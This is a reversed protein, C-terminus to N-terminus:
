DGLRLVVGRGPSHARCDQGDINVVASELACYKGCSAVLGGRRGAKVGKAGLENPRIRITLHLRLPLVISIMDSPFSASQRDPVGFWDITAFYVQQLPIDVIRYICRCHWHHQLVNRWHCLLHTGYHLALALVETLPKHCSQSAGM